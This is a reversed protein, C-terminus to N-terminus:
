KYTLGFRPQEICNPFLLGDADARAVLVGRMVDLDDEIRGLPQGNLQHVVDFVVHLNAVAAPGKIRLVHARAIDGNQARRLRLPLHANQLTTSFSLCRLLLRKSIAFLVWSGWIIETTM